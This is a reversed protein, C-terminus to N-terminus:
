SKKKWQRIALKFFDYTTKFIKLPGHKSKGFNRPHHTVEVETIKKNSEILFFPIFRHMGPRTLDIDKICEKRYARLTCSIDHLKSNFVAKQTVNAIKSAYKKWLSDHRKRRWGCVADYGEDLKELLRPIDAPDNQLDADLSIVIKGKAMQFGVKLSATQGLNKGFSIVFLSPDKKEIERLNRLTQDNSGDNVFIIEYLKRLPDMAKKISEYLPGVSDEENYAPIVISYEIM